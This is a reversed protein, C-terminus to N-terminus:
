SSDDLARCLVPGLQDAPAAGDACLAQRVREVIADLEAYPAAHGLTLAAGQQATPRVHDGPAPQELGRPVLVLAVFQDGALSSTLAPM